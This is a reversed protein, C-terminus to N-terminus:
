RDSSVGEGWPSNSLGTVLLSWIYYLGPRHYNPLLPGAFGGFPNFQQVFGMSDWASGNWIWSWGKDDQAVSGVVKPDPYSTFTPM